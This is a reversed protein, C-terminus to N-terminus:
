SLTFSFVAGQGPRAEAWVRGGHRHVIRQVISLGIGTGSYDEPRHLRQFVGFLKGAYKMDFGVGNDKVFYAIEGPRDTQRSGIEIVPTEARASYKIANSLLNIWVQKLLAPDGLCEPLELIRVDIHQQGDQVERLCEKVIEAPQCAEKKLPQRGLRSFELLDDILQGMQLANTRIDELYRAVDPSLDHAHDKLVIKSFGHVARLPARLDHSVSYSFAELENNAASLQSTREAVRQELNENLSRIQDDAQKRDTIDVIASLAMPGDPTQIPTLGIEVPFETGDKRLGRLERGKGMPRTEPSAFFAKRFDPHGRRFQEPVLIEVPQGLLEERGYGFMLEAQSNVLLIRGERDIMVFANLAAEVILRYRERDGIERVLDQTVRTLGPLALAKPVIRTLAIVTAWSVTATCFKVLGSLRYRPYWYITAEILHGVGCFLIFAAFLWFVPLFPLDRRRLLFYALVAPIAAYAGFIAIDSAIHVTGHTLSWDGCHWRPPFGETDFLASLWALM